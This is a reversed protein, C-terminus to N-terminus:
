ATPVNTSILIAVSHSRALAKQGIGTSILATFAAGLAAASALAAPPAARAACTASVFAITSGGVFLGRQVRGHLRGSPLAHLVERGRALCSHGALMQIPVARQMGVRCPLHHM